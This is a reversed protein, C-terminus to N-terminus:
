GINEAVAVWQEPTLDEPRSSEPIEARKLCDALDRGPRALSRLTNKVQKRRQSFAQRVVQFYRGEGVGRFFAQREVSDKLRVHIVASDVRPAPFFSGARVRVAIEPHGLAQCAVALSSMDGPKAVMREAVERQVMLTLSAPRPDGFIFKMVTPSTIAYPLNAAVQWRDGEGLGFSRVIEQNDLELVDGEILRFNGDNGFRDRLLRCLGHDIEVATVSAGAKLLAGTLMGTGPGIELVAAGPLVGAAAVMRSVVGEDLLFNQSRGSLPRLGYEGLIRRLDSPTM